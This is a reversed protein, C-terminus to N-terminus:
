HAHEKSKIVTLFANCWEDRSRGNGGPPVELMIPEGESTVWSLCTAREAMREFDLDGRSFLECTAPGGVAAPISGQTAVDNLVSAIESVSFDVAGKEAKRSRGVRWRFVDDMADYTVYRAFSRKARHIIFRGGELLSRLEENCRRKREAVIIAGRDEAQFKLTNIEEVHSVRERKLKTELRAVQGMLEFMRDEMEDRQKDETTSTNESQTSLDSSFLSKSMNRVHSIAEKSLSRKHQHKVRDQTPHRPTVPNSQLATVDDEADPVRFFSSLYAGWSKKPARRLGMGRGRPKTCYRCKESFVMHKQDPLETSVEFRLAGKHGSSFPVLFTQAKSNWPLVITDGLMPSTARVRSKSRAKAAMVSERSGHTAVLPVQIEGLLSSDQDEKWDWCQVLLVDEFHGARPETVGEPVPLDFDLLVNWHPESSDKVIHTRRTLGAYTVECFVSPKRDSPTDGSGRGEGQIGISELMKVRVRGTPGPTRIKRVLDGVEISVIEPHVLYDEILGELTRDLWESIGPLDVISSKFPRIQLELRPRDSFSLDLKGIGPVIDEFHINATIEAALEAHHVEAHMNVGKVKSKLLFLGYFDSSIFEFDASIKLTRDSPSFQVHANKITPPNTGFTLELLDIDSMYSISNEACADKLISQFVGQLERSFWPEIWLLWLERLMVNLWGSSLSELLTHAQSQLLRLKMRAKARASRRKESVWGAQLRAFFPPSLTLARGAEQRRWM